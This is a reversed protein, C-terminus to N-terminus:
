RWLKRDLLRYNVAESVHEVQIQDAEDLDAITRAVRLVKDHARASLGLQEVSAKLLRASPDDLECYERVARSSLQSNLLPRGRPATRAAQRRRAREVQERMTRSDTGVKTSRLEDYDVAPAEIHLDIRDLLPGSIKAMYREIQVTGCHCERRPDNRYGCPCPNLSAILMFDAPFTTTAIARSITVQGDELPQRLVELTQRNFEPLEDLFLVGHHALSIEGPTPTSGGGVLGANSITHHPARFPRTALLPQDGGLRGVVSYIRTTQVSEDPSLAPLITPARKALMTKGSGPPGVMLLNHAGAAAITMARKAMEQGRVDAFDVDYAGHEAVLDSVVCPQPDIDLDGAFFAAAEALSDVAIVDLGEVVAAERANQRPLVLGSVGPQEAAAIAMSLAGRIPRTAGDLSLEGVVAYRHLRDGGIQGSGALVGLGIPLDFSAAQKPLEAPALNIVIRDHPRVFGSNVIAREVRHTAERVAAEPLGVLVTKPIAGPSVDVEAVVPAADIGLLSYTSIRALM